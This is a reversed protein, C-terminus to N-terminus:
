KAADKGPAAGSAQPADVRVKGGPMIAVHGVTVVREGPKVGTTLVVRDGQRQGLEVPRFEAKSDATVVYVDIPEKRGRIRLPEQPHASFM